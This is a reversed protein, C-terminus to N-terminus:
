HLQGQVGLRIPQGELNRILTLRAWRFARRLPLEFRRFDIVQPGATETNLENMPHEVFNIKARARATAVTDRHPQISGPRPLIM